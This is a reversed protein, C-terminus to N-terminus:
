DRAMEKVTDHGFDKVVDQQTDEIESVSYESSKIHLEKTIEPPQM